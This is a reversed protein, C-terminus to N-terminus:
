DACGAGMKSRLVDSKLLFAGAAVVTQGRELGETIEVFGDSRLGTRVPRRLFYDEDHQVFVFDRGEDGLVASSPVVLGKGAGGLDLSVRAFMGPRLLGDLNELIVRAKVTRTAEDMVRGLFDLRGSFRHDPFARVEVQAPVAGAALADSVRALHTEYLDAWVWLSGTDGLLALETDREVTEGRVAHLRLIEGAFPARVALRGTAREVGYTELATIEPEELGFRLLRQRASNAHIKGAAFRKEAELYERESTIRSSHLEEKREFAARALDQEALASLFEAEAEALEVSEIELLVQGVEVSMGLDVLVRAIVGGIRPGLHAIRKEDFRIEGTLEIEVPIEREGVRETSVLGQELLDPSLKVVGVEFRCGTCQHAPVGHECSEAFLEAASRDLDSAGDEGHDHGAHTDEAEGHDHGAHADAVQSREDHADEGSTSEAGGCSILSLALCGLGLVIGHIGVHRNM